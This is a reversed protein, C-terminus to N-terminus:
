WHFVIGANVAAGSLDGGPSSGGLFGSDIHDIEVARYMAELYLSIRTAGLRESGGGIGLEAGVTGYFGLEDTPAFEADPGVARSTSGDVLYWGIGLGAYLDLPGHPATHASFGLELPVLELTVSPDSALDRYRAVRFDIMLGGADTAPAAFLLGLAEGAGGDKTDWYGVTLGMRKDAFAASTMMTLICVGFMLRRM